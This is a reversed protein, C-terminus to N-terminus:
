TWWVCGVVCRFGFLRAEFYFCGVKLFGSVRESLSFVFRCSLLLQKFVKNQARNDRRQNQHHVVARQLTENLNIKNM